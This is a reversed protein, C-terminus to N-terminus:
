DLILSTLSRETLDEPNSKARQVARDLEAPTFLLCQAKGLGDKVWVSLYEASSNPSASRKTNAVPILQGLRVKM